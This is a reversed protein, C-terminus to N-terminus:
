HVHTQALEPPQHLVPFGPTSYDTPNCLTLYSHAASCCCCGGGLVQATCDRLGSQVEGEMQLNSIFRSVQSPQHSSEMCHRHQPRTWPTRRLGGSRSGMVSRHPPPCITLVPEQECQLLCSGADDSATKPSGLGRGQAALPWNCAPAPPHPPPQSTVSACPLFVPKGSRSDSRGLM